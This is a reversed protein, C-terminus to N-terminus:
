LNSFVHGFITNLNVVGLPVYVFISELRDKYKYFETEFLENFVNDNLEVLSKSITGFMIFSPSVVVFIFVFGELVLLGGGLTKQM